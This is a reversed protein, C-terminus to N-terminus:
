LNKEIWTAIRKFSWGREDNFDALREEMDTGDPDKALLAAPCLNVESLFEANLINKLRRKQSIGLVGMCCFEYEGPKESNRALRNRGQKYKGSRLAAIWTAKMKVPLKVYEIKSM